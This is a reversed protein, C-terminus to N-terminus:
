TGGKVGAREEVGGLVRTCREATESMDREEAREIASRAVSVGSSTSKRSATMLRAGVEAVVKMWM